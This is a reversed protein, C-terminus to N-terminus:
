GRGASTMSAAPAGVSTARASSPESSRAYSALLTSSSSPGGGGGPADDAGVAIRDGLVRFM